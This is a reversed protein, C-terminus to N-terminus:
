RRPTGPRSARPSAAKRSSTGRSSRRTSRSQEEADGSAEPPRQVDQLIRPRLRDAAQRGGSTGRFLHAPTGAQGDGQARVLKWGLNWADDMSVNMGQGAKASHTHCADGAIFVRPPPDAMEGGPRRRVQRMAAPRDPVGVVVRRRQDRDHVPAPDSERGRGAEGPHRQPKSCRRTASRTSSSTSGSWTDARVRSSSSTARTRPTSRASSGSTRSTPSRWSTWSGGPSNTADGVLERGIATRIRAARATAASWMDPGSRRRRGPKGLGEIHRLAVTM